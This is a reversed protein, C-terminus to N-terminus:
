AATGEAVMSQVSTSPSPMGISSRPASSTSSGEPPSAIAGEPVATAFGANSTVGARKSVPMMVSRPTQSGAASAVSKGPSPAALGHGMQLQPPLDDGGRQGHVLQADVAALRAIDACADSATEQHSRRAEGVFRGLRLVDDGNGEISARRAAAHWRRLPSEMAVDVRRTGFHYAHHM